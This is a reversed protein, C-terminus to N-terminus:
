EFARLIQEFFIRGFASSSFIRDGFTDFLRSLSIDLKKELDEFNKEFLFSYMCIRHTRHTFVRITFIRSLRIPICM